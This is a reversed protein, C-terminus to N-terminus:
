STCPCLIPRSVSRVANSSFSHAGILPATACDCAPANTDGRALESGETVGPEAEVPRGCSKSGELRALPLNSERLLHEVVLQDVDARAPEDAGVLDLQHLDVAAVLDDADVGARSAKQTPHQRGREGTGNGALAKAVPRGQFREGM